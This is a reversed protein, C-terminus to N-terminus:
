RQALAQQEFASQEMGQKRGRVLIFSHLCEDGLATRLEPAPSPSFGLPMGTGLRTRCLSNPKMATRDAMTPPVLSFKPSDNVRADQPFLRGPEPIKARNSPSCMALVGWDFFRSRCLIPRVMIFRARIDRIRVKMRFTSSATALPSPSAAAAASRRACGSIMRPTVLPTSCLFVALLFIELNDFRTLIAPEQNVRGQRLRPQTQVSNLGLADTTQGPRRHPRPREALERQPRSCAIM